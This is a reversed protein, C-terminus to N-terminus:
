QMRKRTDNKLMWEDNFIKSMYKIGHDCLLTTITVGGERPGEAVCREAVMRSACVNVGASGGVMIGRKSMARCEDFAEFEHVSHILRPHHPHPSNSFENAM